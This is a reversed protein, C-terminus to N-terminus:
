ENADVWANACGDCVPHSEGDDCAMNQTSPNDCFHCTEAALKAAARKERAITRPDIVNADGVINAIAALETADAVYVVYRSRGDARKRGRTGTEPIDPVDMDSPCVWVTNFMKIADGFNGARALRRAHKVDIGHQECYQKLSVMNDM